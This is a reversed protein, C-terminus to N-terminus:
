FALIACVNLNDGKDFRTRNSDGSSFDLKYTYYSNSSYEYWESSSWYWGTGLTTCGLNSLLFNMKDKNNYIVKLEDLSPLYWGQGYNSCWTKASNWSATTQATSLIMGTQSDTKEVYVIGKLEPLSSTTIATLHENLLSVITLQTNSSLDIDTIALGSAYLETLLNIYRSCPPIPM